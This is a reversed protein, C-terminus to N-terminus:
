ILKMGEYSLFIAKAKEEDDKNLCEILNEAIEPVIYPVHKKYRKNTDKSIQAKEYSKKCSLYILRQAKDRWPISETRYTM